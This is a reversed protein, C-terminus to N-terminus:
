NVILFIDNDGDLVPQVQPDLFQLALEVCWINTYLAGFVHHLTDTSIWGFLYRCGHLQYAFLIFIRLKSKNTNMEYDNCNKIAARM